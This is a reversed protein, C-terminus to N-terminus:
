RRSSDRDRPDDSPYDAIYTFVTRVYDVPDLKELERIRGVDITGEVVSSNDYTERVDLGAKRLQALADDLRNEWRKDLTVLVDSIRADISM